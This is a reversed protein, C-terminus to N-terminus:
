LGVRSISRTGWTRAWWSLYGRESLMDEVMGALEAGFPHRDQRNWMEIAARISGNVARPQRLGRWSLYGGSLLLIYIAKPSHAGVAIRRRIPTTRLAVM